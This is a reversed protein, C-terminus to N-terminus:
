TWSPAEAACITMRIVSIIEVIAIITTKDSLKSLHVWIWNLNLLLIIAVQWNIIAISEEELIM